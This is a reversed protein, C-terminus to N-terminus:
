NSAMTHPNASRAALSLGAGPSTCCKRRNFLATFSMETILTDFSPQFSTRSQVYSSKLSSSANWRRLANRSEAYCVCFMVSPSDWRPVVRHYSPGVGVLYRCLIM